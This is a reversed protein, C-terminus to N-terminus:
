QNGISIKEDNVKGFKSRFNTERGVWRKGILVTTSVMIIAGGAVSWGSPPIGIFCYQMTFAYVIDLNRILILPGADELKLSFALCVLGALGFIGVLAIYFGSKWCAPIVMPEGLSTMIVPVFMSGFLSPYFINVTFHQKLGIKRTLVYYLSIFVAGLLVFGIGLLHLAERSENPIQEHQFTINVNDAREGFIFNPRAALIVGVFSCFGCIGDVISCSESLLAYAFLSTFIPSTFTIVTADGLPIKDIGLYIFTVSSFGCIGMIILQGISVEDTIVSIKAAFLVPVLFVLQVVSRGFVIELTPLDAQNEEIALQVFLNSATLLIGALAMLLMGFIPSHLCPKSNNIKEKGM